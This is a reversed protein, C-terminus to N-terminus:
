SKIFIFRFFFFFVLFVGLRVTSPNTRIFSNDAATALVTKGHVWQTPATLRTM